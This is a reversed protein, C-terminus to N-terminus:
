SFLPLQVSSRQFGTSIIPNVMSLDTQQRPQCHV